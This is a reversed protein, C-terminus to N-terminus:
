NWLQLCQYARGPASVAKYSNFWLKEGRLASQYLLPKGNQCLDPQSRLMRLSLRGSLQALLHGASM